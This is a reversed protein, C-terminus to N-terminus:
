KCGYNIKGDSSTHIYADGSCHLSSYNGKDDTYTLQYSTYITTMCGSLMTFAVLALLKKM